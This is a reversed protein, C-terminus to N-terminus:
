TENRIETTEWAVTLTHRGVNDLILTENSYYGDGPIQFSVVAEEPITPLEELHEPGYRLLTLIDDGTLDIRGKRIVTTSSDHHVKM